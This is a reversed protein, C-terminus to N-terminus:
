HSPFIGLMRCVALTLDARNLTYFHIHKVGGACLMKCQEAATAVALAQLQAPDEMDAFRQHVWEPVSAGCMGSFRVMQKYNGVPLLGPEIEQTMGLKRVHELFTFYMPVDFFYQTIGRTAGADFKRKLHDLDAQPSQATPHTEPYAAVSIEFDGVELLGKVLEDAYAYGQPHPVYEGTDAPPDGRLAVIHRIGDNWYAQAIQRIEDRSSGVCTLHAAPELETEQRIRKVLQHTRDRTSGGAGYTVSVYRPKLTALQQISEWLADALADTKPPFFEFSVSPPNALIDTQFSDLHITMVESKARRHHIAVILM